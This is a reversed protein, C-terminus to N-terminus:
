GAFRGILKNIKHSKRSRETSTLRESTILDLLDPDDLLIKHCQSLRSDRLTHSQKAIRVECRPKGILMERNHRADDSRAQDILIRRLVGIVNRRSPMPVDKLAIWAESIADDTDQTFIGSCDRILEILM